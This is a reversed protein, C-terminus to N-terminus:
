GNKKAAHVRASERTFEAGYLYAQPTLNGVRAALQRLTEGAEVKYVGAQNIEGELRVYKTQKDMPVRIDDKSFITVVDGPQLLLNSEPDNGMVVKGLNFPILTTTLDAPNLREIVAYDWNVEASRINSMM